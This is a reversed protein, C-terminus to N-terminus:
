GIAPWGIRLSWNCTLAGVRGEWRWETETPLGAPLCNVLSWNVM